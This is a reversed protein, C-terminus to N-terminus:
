ESGEQTLRVFAGTPFDESVVFEGGEVIFILSGFFIMGLELGSRSINSMLCSLVSYNCFARSPVINM